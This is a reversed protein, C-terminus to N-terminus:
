PVKINLHKLCLFQNAFFALLWLLKQSLENVYKYFM